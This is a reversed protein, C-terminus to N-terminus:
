SGYILLILATQEQAKHDHFWMTCVRKQSAAKIKAYCKQSKGM